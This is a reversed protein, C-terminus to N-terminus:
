GQHEQAHVARRLGIAGRPVPWRAERDPHRGRLESPHREILRDSETRGTSSVSASTSAIAEWAQKPSGRSVLLSSGAQRRLSYSCVGVVYGYRTSGARSDTIAFRSDVGAQFRAQAGSSWDGEGVPIRANAGGAFLAAGAALTATTLLMRTKTIDYM